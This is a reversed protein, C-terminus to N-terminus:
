KGNALKRLLEAGYQYSELYDVTEGALGFRAQVRERDTVPREEEWAVGLHDCVGRATAEALKDRYASDKLLEVDERSTHFGYEVIVAPAMTATLVTYGEHLIGSGRVLVGAAHSRNVIAAALRNRPASLPGSSTFVLLGRADQWGGGGVANSHLSIFVDAGAVNSIAARRTLTPYDGEDRTLLVRVGRAELLEKVRQAMDWAFEHEKYTGDPSGNVNGPGHGPDLCVLADCM